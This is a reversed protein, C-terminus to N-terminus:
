VPGLDRADLHAGISRTILRAGKELCGFSLRQLSQQDERNRGPHPAALEPAEKCAAPAVLDAVSDITRRTGARTPM